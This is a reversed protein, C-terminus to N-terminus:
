GSYSARRSMLWALCFTQIIHVAVTAKELQYEEMQDAYSLSCHKGYRLLCLRQLTSHFDLGHLSDLRLQQDPSHAKHSLRMRWKTARQRKSKWAYMELQFMMYLRAERGKKLGLCRFRELTFLLRRARAFPLDITSVNEVAYEADSKSM